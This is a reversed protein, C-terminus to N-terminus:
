RGDKGPTGRALWDLVLREQLSDLSSRGAMERVIRTWQRPTREEPAYLVHCAACRSEYLEKGRLLDESLALKGAPVETGALPAPRVGCGLLLGCGGLLPLAGIGM